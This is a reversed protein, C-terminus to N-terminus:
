SVSSRDPSFLGGRWQVPFSFNCPAPPVLKPNKIPKPTAIKYCAIPGVEEAWSIRWTSPELKGVEQVASIPGKLSLHKRNIKYTFNDFVNIFM